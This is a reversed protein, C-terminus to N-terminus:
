LDPRGPLRLWRRLWHRHSRAEQRLQEM